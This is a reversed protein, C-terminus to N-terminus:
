RFLMRSILRDKLIFHHYLAALTHGVAVLVLAYAALEHIETLPRFIQPDRALLPSVQFLGFDIGRGRFLLTPVGILPVVFMLIYLLFHGGHSLRRILMTTQTPLEPPRHSFRWWLRLASLVLIGLGLLVHLNVVADDWSKPFADVTLGLAFAAVIMLAIAWHLWIALRSYREVQM